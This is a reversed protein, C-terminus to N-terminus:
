SVHISNGSVCAFHENYGGQSIGRINITEEQFSITKEVM